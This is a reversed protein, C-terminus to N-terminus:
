SGPLLFSSPINTEKEVPSATYNYQPICGIPTLCYKRKYFGFLLQVYTGALNKYWLSQQVPTHINMRKKQERKIRINIWSYIIISHAVKSRHMYTYTYDSLRITQSHPWIASCLKIILDLYIHVTYAVVRVSQGALKYMGPLKYTCTSTYMVSHQHM